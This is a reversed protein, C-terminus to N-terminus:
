LVGILMGLVFVIWWTFSYERLRVLLAFYLWAPFFVILSSILLPTVQTYTALGFLCRAVAYVAAITIPTGVELVVRGLAGLLMM